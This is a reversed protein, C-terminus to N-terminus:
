LWCLMQAIEPPSLQAGTTSLNLGTFCSLSKPRIRLSRSVVFTLKVLPFRVVVFYATEARITKSYCPHCKPLHFEFRARIGNPFHHNQSGMAVEVSSMEM